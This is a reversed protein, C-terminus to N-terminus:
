GFFWHSLAHPSWIVVVVTWMEFMGASWLSHQKVWTGGKLRRHDQDSVVTNWVRCSCLLNHQFLTAELYHHQFVVSVCVFWMNIVTVAVNNCCKCYFKKIRGAVSWGPVCQNKLSLFLPSLSRLFLPGCIVSFHHHWNGGQGHRPQHPPTQWLWTVETFSGPSQLLLLSASSFSSHGLYCTVDRNESHHSTCHWLHVSTNYRTVPRWATISKLPFRMLTPQARTPPARRSWLDRKSISFWLCSRTLLLTVYMYHTWVSGRQPHSCPFLTNDNKNLDNRHGLEKDGGVSSHM